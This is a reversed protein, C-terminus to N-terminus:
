VVEGHTRESPARWPSSTVKNRAIVVEAIVVNIVWSLTMLLDRVLGESQGTILMWPLLVLVQTGAGQGLAYARVMFAEHRGVDRRLISRWAIVISVLMGTGVLLRVAYLLPGQHYVPIDYLLTMWLGTVGATLGCAVLFRGARRHLGPWRLRFRKSFQFAGLISYLTASVVHLIIPVPSHVFRANELTVTASPSMTVFRAIGGVMPVLSLVVLLTPIALDARTLPRTITNRTKM